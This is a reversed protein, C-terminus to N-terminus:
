QRFCKDLIYIYREELDAHHYLELSKEGGERRTIFSKTTKLIAIM